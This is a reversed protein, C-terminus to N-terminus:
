SSIFWNLHVSGAMFPCCVRIRYMRVESYNLPWLASSVDVVSIVTCFFLLSCKPLLSCPICLSCILCHPHLPLLASNPLCLCVRMKCCIPLSTFVYALLRSLNLSCITVVARTHTPNMDCGLTASVLSCVRLYEGQRLVSTTSRQDPEAWSWDTQM